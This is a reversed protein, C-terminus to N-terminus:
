SAASKWGSECRTVASWARCVPSAPASAIAGRAPSGSGATTRRLAVVSTVQLNSSTPSSQAAAVMATLQADSVPTDLFRRVSRHGLLLDITKNRAVLQFSPDGYRATVFLM